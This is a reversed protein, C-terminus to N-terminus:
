LPECYTNNETDPLPEFGPLCSWECTPIDWGGATTYTATVTVVETVSCDESGTYNPSCGPTVVLCGTEKQNICDGDEYTYDLECLGGEAQYEFAGMDAAPTGIGSNNTDPDDVRPNGDMDRKPAVDADASDICGSGERLRFDDDEDDVFQPEEDINGIGPFGGEVDSYRVTSTARHSDYIADPWNAWFISNAVKPYSRDYNRIAGGRRHAGNEVFTTNIIVPSSKQNYIAGGGDSHWGTSSNRSFVCNTITPFSHWNYIAGGASSAENDTFTCNAIHPSAYHNVMGGGRDSSWGWRGHSNANGGTITFGDLTSHDAGTVVHYVDSEQHWWWGWCSGYDDAGTGDLVTENELVDRDDWEDGSEFGGYVHVFPRMQVTDYRSWRYIQYTGKAVFVSCSRSTDYRAAWSAADIGQQVSEFATEWSRGDPHHAQTELDVFITCGSDTPSFTFDTDLCARIDTELETELDGQPAFCTRTILAVATIAARAFM